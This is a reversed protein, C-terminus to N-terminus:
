PQVLTDFQLGIETEPSGPKREISLSRVQGLPFFNEVSALAEGFPLVRAKALRVEWKALAHDPLGAFPLLQALDIEAEGFGQARLAQSFKAPTEVLYPKAISSALHTAWALLPAESAARAERARLRSLDRTATFVIGQAEAVASEASAHERGLPLSILAFYATVAAVAGAIVLIMKRQPDITM